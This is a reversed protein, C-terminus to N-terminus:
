QNDFYSPERGGNAKLEEKRSSYILRLVEKTKEGYNSAKIGRAVEHLDDLTEANNIAEAVVAVALTNIFESM